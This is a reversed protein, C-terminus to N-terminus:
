KVFVYYIIEKCLTWIRMVVVLFVLMLVVFKTILAVCASVADFRQLPVGRLRSLVIVWAIIHASM